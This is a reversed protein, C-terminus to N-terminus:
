SAAKVEIKKPKAQESKDLEIYLVGNEYKANIKEVNVKNGITFDRKYDALKFEKLIANWSEDVSGVKGTVTLTDAETTIDINEKTTGPMDLLIFYKDRSEYIDVAPTYYTKREITKEM